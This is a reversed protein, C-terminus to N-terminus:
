LAAGAPKRSRGRVPGEGCSCSKRRRTGGCSVCVGTDDLHDLLGVPQGTRYLNVAGTKDRTRVWWKRGLPKIKKAQAFTFEDFTSADYTVFRFVRNVPWRMPPRRISGDQDYAPLAWRCPKGTRPDKRARPALLGFCRRKGDEREFRDPYRGKCVTVMQTVERLLVDARAWNPATWVLEVDHKRLQNLVRQLEAPLSMASRSPLCATIEDLLFLAPRNGTISWLFREGDDTIGYRPGADSTGWRVDDPAWALDDRGPGWQDPNEAWHVGIRPIDTWSGLKIAGPHILTMNSVVAVGSRLAPYALFRVAFLTKGEGNGGVVARITM